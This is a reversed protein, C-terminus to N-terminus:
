SYEVGGQKKYTSPSVTFRRRFMRSFSFVDSYGTSQAVVGPAYGQLLLRAAKQLRLECLYQQPSVGTHKKFLNSFYSRDLNLNAAIEYVTVGRAYEAEMFSKAKDVYIQGIKEEAPHYDSMMSVLEFIKACIYEERGTLITNAEMMAHFIRGVEPLKWVPEDFAPPLTLSTYFGCWIYYWPDAEDARYTTIEEPRIVFCQGAGLEFEKGRSYFTGKGAVVYHVLYYARTAPGYTHRPACREQGSTAPNVDRFRKNYLMLVEM